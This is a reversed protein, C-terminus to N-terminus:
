RWRTPLRTTLHKEARLLYAPIVDYPRRERNMVKRFMRAGDRYFQELLRNTGSISTDHIRFLGVHRRSARFRAGRVAMDLLLEGDWCTSNEINFGQVAHYCGARFFVGQQFLNAAGYVLRLRSMTSARIERLLKGDGDIKFGSGCLVDIDPHAEFVAAAYALSGPLLADDANLFFFVDGTAQRFGNNLGDAPGRDREYVRQIRDGYGDIIDRSGDTSGPDVVIYQLNGYHQDLVSDICAPLYKAQNFSITVVSIKIM